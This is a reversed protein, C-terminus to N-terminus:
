GGRCIRAAEIVGDWCRIRACFAPEGANEAEAIPIPDGECPSELLRLSLPAHFDTDMHIHRTLYHHFAPAQALSWQLTDPLRRFMRPIIRERGLAVAAAVVHPKDDRIFCFTTDCLHRAPLPLPALDSYLAKHIGQTRVLDLFQM